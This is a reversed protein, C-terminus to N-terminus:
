TDKKWDTSVQEEELIKRFLIHLIKATLEMDSNLAETPINDQEAAEEHKIQRIAYM